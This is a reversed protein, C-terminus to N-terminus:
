LTKWRQKTIQSNKRPFDLDDWALSHRFKRPSFDVMFITTLLHYKYGYKKWNFTAYYTTKFSELICQSLRLFLFAGVCYTGLELACLTGLKTPNVLLTDLPFHITWMWTLPTLGIAVVWDCRKYSFTTSPNRLHWSCSANVRDFDMWFKMM